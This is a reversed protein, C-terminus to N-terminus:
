LFRKSHVRPSFTMGFGQRLHRLIALIESSQPCSLRAVQVVSVGSKSVHVYPTKPLNADTHAKHLLIICLSNPVM